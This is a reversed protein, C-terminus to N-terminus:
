TLEAFFFGVLQGVLWFVGVKSNPKIDSGTVMIEVTPM